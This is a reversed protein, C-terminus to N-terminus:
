PEKMLHNVIDEISVRSRYFPKPTWTGACSNADPCGEAALRDAHVNGHLSVHEIIEGNVRFVAELEKDKLKKLGAIVAQNKGASMEIRAPDIGAYHDWRARGVAAAVFAHNCFHVAGDDRVRSGLVHISEEVKGDTNQQHRIFVCSHRDPDMGLSVICWRGARVVDDDSWQQVPGQATLPKSLVHHFVHKIPQGRGSRYPTESTLLQVVEEIVAASEWNVLGLLKGTAGCVQAYALACQVPQCFAGKPQDRVGLVSEEIQFKIPYSAENIVLKQANVAKSKTKAAYEKAMEKGSHVDKEVRKDSRHTKAGCTASLKEAQAVAADLARFDKLAALAAEKKQEVIASLMKEAQADKVARSQAAAAAAERAALTACHVGHQEAHFAREDALAIRAAERAAERSTLTARGLHANHDEMERIKKEAIAVAETPQQPLAGLALSSWWEALRQFIVLFRAALTALSATHEHDPIGVPTADVNAEPHSEPHSHGRVHPM